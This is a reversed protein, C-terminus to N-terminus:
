VVSCTTLWCMCVVQVGGAGTGRAHRLCYDRARFPPEAGALRWTARCFPFVPAPYRCVPGDEAKPRTRSLWPRSPGKEPGCAQKHRGGRRLFALLCSSLAASLVCSCQMGAASALELSQKQVETSNVCQDCGLPTIGNM